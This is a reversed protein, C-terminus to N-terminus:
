GKNTLFIEPGLIVRQLIGEAKHVCKEMFAIWQEREKENEAGLDDPEIAATGGLCLCGKPQVCLFHLLVVGLDIECKGRVNAKLVKGKTPLLM